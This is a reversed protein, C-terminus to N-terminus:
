YGRAVRLEYNTPYRAYFALRNFETPSTIRIELDNESRTVLAAGIGGGMVIGIAAGILGEALGAWEGGGNSRGISSGLLGGVFFGAVGFLLAGFARAAPTSGDNSLVVRDLAGHHASLFAHDRTRYVLSDRNIGLLEGIVVSSDKFYIQTSQRARESKFNACSSLMLAIALAAFAASSFRPILIL